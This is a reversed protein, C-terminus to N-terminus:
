ESQDTPFPTKAIANSCCRPNSPQVRRGIGGLRIVALNPHLHHLHHLSPM